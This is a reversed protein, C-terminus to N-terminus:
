LYVTMLTDTIENQDKLLSSHCIDREYVEAIFFGEREHVQLRFFTGKQLPFLEETYAMITGGGEKRPHITGFTKHVLLPLKIIKHCNERKKLLLPPTQSRM